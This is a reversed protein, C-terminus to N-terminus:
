RSLNAMKNGQPMESVVFVYAAITWQIISLPFTVPTLGVLGIVGLLLFALTLAAIKRREADSSATLSLKAGRTAVIVYLWGILLVGVLGYEGLVVLYYPDVASSGATSGYTAAPGIEGAGAGFLCGFFSTERLLDMVLYLQHFRATNSAYDGDFIQAVRMFFMDPELLIPALLVLGLALIKLYNGKKRNLLLMAVVACATMVWARRSFTLFLAIAAALFFIVFFARLVFAQEQRFYGVAMLISASIFSGYVNLNPLVGAQRAVESVGYALGVDSVSVAEVLGFFIAFAAIVLWLRIMYDLTTAQLVAAMGLFLWIYKLHLVLSALAREGDPAFLASASMYVTLMFIVLAVDAVKRKSQTAVLLILLISFLVILEGVAWPQFGPGKLAILVVVGGTLWSALLIRM